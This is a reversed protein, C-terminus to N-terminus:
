LQLIAFILTAATLILCVTEFFKRGFNYAFGPTLDEAGNYQFGLRLQELRWSLQPFFAEVAGFAGLLVGLFLEGIGKNIVMLIVAAVFLAVASVGCGIGVIKDFLSVYLPENRNYLRETASMLSQKAIKEQQPSLKDGLKENCDVCFMREDSNHAGCSECIKM